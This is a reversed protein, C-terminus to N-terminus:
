TKKDTKKRRPESSKDEIKEKVLEEGPQLQCTKDGTNV